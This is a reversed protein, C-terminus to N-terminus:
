GTGFIRFTIKQSVLHFFDSGFISDEVTNQRKSYWIIPANKIYIIIGSHFRRNAMNGSHKTDVYAKILVYKGLAYPIHRSM